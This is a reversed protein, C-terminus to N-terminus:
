NITYYFEEIWRSSRTVLVMQEWIQYKIRKPKHVELIRRYVFWRQHSQFLRAPNLTHTVCLHRFQTWPPGACECFRTMCLKSCYYYRWVHTAVACATLDALKLVAKKRKLRIFRASRGRKRATDCQRSELETSETFNGPRNPNSMRFRLWPRM